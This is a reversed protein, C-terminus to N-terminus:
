DYKNCKTITSSTTNQLLGFWNKHINNIVHSVHHHINKNYSDQHHHINKNYSDQNPEWLDVWQHNTWYLHLHPILLFKQSMKHDVPTLSVHM